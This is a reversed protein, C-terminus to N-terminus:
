CDIDGIQGSLGCQTGMQCKSANAASFAVMNGRELQNPIISLGGCTLRAFKQFCKATVAFSQASTSSIGSNEDSTAKPENRIQDSVRDGPRFAFANNKGLAPEPSANGCINWNAQQRTLIKPTPSQSNGGAIRIHGSPFFRPRPCVTVVSRLLVPFNM